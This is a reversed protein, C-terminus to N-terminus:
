LLGAYDAELRDSTLGDLLDTFCLWASLGHLNAFQEPVFRPGDLIGEALLQKLVPLDELVTKGAFLLPIADLKGARVAYRLFNYLLIFGKTYTIDKSFPPGTPLSGRFVRMAAAYAEQDSVGSQRRCFRFVELFDAGSEAMQVTHIRNTLRRLRVPHSALAIVEMLVALGEQTVTSSPPGKGLFRCVRQNAGNFNTGIHVWGEHVRLLNLDRLSFTADHRLKIYDSGAAADAVIGDDLVVRVDQELMGFDKRLHENLYAVADEGSLKATDDKLASSKTLRNLNRSMRRGLDGLNPEGAHFAEDTTGFLEVSRRGFEATGRANLMSVVSQYERCMRRLINAVPNIRGLRRTVDQEIEQFEASKAAADFRLPARVYYDADVAPLERCKKAIFDAEISEDWKISDLIRIPQQALVIRDSLM